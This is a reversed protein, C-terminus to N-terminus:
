NFTKSFPIQAVKPWKIKEALEEGSELINFISEIEKVEKGDQFIRGELINIGGCTSLNVAVIFDIVKKYFADKIVHEDVYEKKSLEINDKVEDILVLRQNKNPFEIETSIIIPYRHDQKKIDDIYFQINNHFNDTTTYDHFIIQHNEGFINIEYTESGNIINELIYDEGYYDSAVLVATNLLKM